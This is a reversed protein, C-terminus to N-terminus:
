RDRELIHRQHEESILTLHIQQQETLLRRSRRLGM